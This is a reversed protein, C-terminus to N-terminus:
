LRLSGNQRFLHIRCTAVVIGFLKGPIEKNEAISLLVEIEDKLKSADAPYFYGAVAPKRVLSM